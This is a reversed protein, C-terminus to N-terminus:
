QGAEERRGGERRSGEQHSDERGCGGSAPLAQAVSDTTVDLAFLERVLAAYQEGGPEAALQRVRVTPQHLLQQVVRHVTRAVEARLEDPLDPRRQSLKRLESAVVDDARARLAAVTPAIEAGRLWAAYAGVEEAVIDEAAAVDSASQAGTLAVGLREIDLLIVGPQDALAPDVDRPVALDLVLRHGRAPLETIVYGSSATASIVIDAGEIAGPVASFDIAAGGYAKALRLAKPMSRNAVMLQGVGLRNLTACALAGMAGAGIVLVRADELSLGSEETGIELAASVVSQGARDIGTEAHVRKGVRLATQLLEHLVRGPADAATAVGYADRLQGLIQAEGVVMSDLGSALRYAHRVAEDDYRVYLHDVLDDLEVGAHAALVASVESLGAHFASVAAYIEVRNCTSLVIAEGVSHQALLGALLAPVDGPPVSVKELLSVPATRYSVGVILPNM